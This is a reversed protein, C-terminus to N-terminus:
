YRYNNEDLKVVKVNDLNINEFDNNKFLLKIFNNECKILIGYKVFGDKMIVKVKKNLLEEFM